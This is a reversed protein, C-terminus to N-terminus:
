VFYVYQLNLFFNIPLYDMVINDIKMYCNLSTTDVIPTKQM